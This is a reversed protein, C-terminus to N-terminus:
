PPITVVGVKKFDDDFTVIADLNFRRLLAISTADTLSLRHERFKKVLNWAEDQLQDDVWLQVISGRVVSQRFITYFDEAVKFSVRYLLRTVTEDVVDNSTFISLGGKVFDSLLRKAEDHHPEGILTANIWASSDIFIKRYM